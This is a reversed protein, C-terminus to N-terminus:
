RSPDHAAEAALALAAYDGISDGLMAPVIACARVARPLAEQEFARQMPQTLLDGSRAFISGLVVRDPNLFDALLALGRGLMEGCVAYVECAAPDSTRAAEAVARADPLEAGLYAPVVGRQRYQEGILQALQRIGGGS